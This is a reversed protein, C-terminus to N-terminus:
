SGRFLEYVPSSPLLSFVCLKGRLNFCHVQNAFNVACVRRTFSAFNPVGYKEKPKFSSTFNKRGKEAPAGDSSDAKKSKLRHISNKCEMEAM